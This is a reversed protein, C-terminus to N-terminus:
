QEFDTIEPNMSCVHKYDQPKMSSLCNHLCITAGVKSLCDSIFARRYGIQIRRHGSKCVVFTSVQLGLFGARSVAHTGVNHILYNSALNVGYPFLSELVNERRLSITGSKILIFCLATLRHFEHASFFCLYSAFTDLEIAAFEYGVACNFRKPM